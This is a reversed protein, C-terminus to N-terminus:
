IEPRVKRILDAYSWNGDIQWNYYQRPTINLANAVEKAKEPNGGALTVKYIAQIARQKRTSQDARSKGNRRVGFRWKGQEAFLEAIWTAAKEDKQDAPLNAARRFAAVHGPKPQEHSLLAEAALQRLLLRFAQGIHNHIYADVRTRLRDSHSGEEVRKVEEVLQQWRALDKAHSLSGLRESLDMASEEAILQRCLAGLDPWVERTRQFSEATPKFRPRLATTVTARLRLTTKSRFTVKAEVIRPVKSM